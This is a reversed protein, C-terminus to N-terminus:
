KNQLDLLHDYEDQLVKMKSEVLPFLENSWPEGLHIPDVDFIGSIRLARFVAIHKQYILFQDSLEKNPRALYFKTELIKVIEEHNPLIVSKDIETGVKRRIEDEHNRDLIRKWVVNDRQLRFYIPIYFESLQRELLEIRKARLEDKRKWFRDWVSKLVFGLVAGIITWVGTKLFDEM